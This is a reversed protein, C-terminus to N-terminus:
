HGTLRAQYADTVRSLGFDAVKAEVLLASSANSLLINRAALDRHLVRKSSIAAMGLLVQRAVKLRWEMSVSSGHLRLYSDLAGDTFYEM